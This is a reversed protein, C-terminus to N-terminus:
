DLSERDLRLPGRGEEIWEGASSCYWEEPKDCLGVRVPNDHIYKVIEFVAERSDVNQDYGNGQQWFRHPTYRQGTELLRLGDPNHKRLYNMARRSVSLKVATEIKAMDYEEELPFVLLHVHNPMIVYAWLHFQFRERASELAEIVYRRTRDRALFHRRQYCSFTLFHAEGPTNQFRVTRRYTVDDDM